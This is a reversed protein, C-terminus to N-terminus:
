FTRGEIPYEYDPIFRKLAANLASKGQGRLECADRSVGDWQAINNVQDPAVKHANRKLNEYQSVVGAGVSIHIAGILVNALDEGGNELESMLRDRLVQEQFKATEGAARAKSALDDAMAPDPVLRAKCSFEHMKLIEIAIRDIIEAVHAYKIINNTM